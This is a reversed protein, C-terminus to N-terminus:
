WLSNETLKKSIYNGSVLLLLNVVSNFLGVASGYSYDMQMLGRRYVYTSIVDATEYIAPNYLLLIKESGESMLSGIRLTLIIMITPLISPLTIHIMKQWRNAGDVTAAEYLAMDVGALAALYIISNWGFNQWISQIIYIPRFYGPKILLNIPEFGFIKSLLVTIVGKDQTFQIIISCVIMASIFHPLYSITQCLRKIKGSGMENLLLAFIIPVPFGFILQYVNILLTNRITRIFFVDSLFQQFYQFGVWKSRLIGLGPSFRKFAIILGYMPWYHFILYYLIPLVAM